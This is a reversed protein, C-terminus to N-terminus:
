RRLFGADRSAERSRKDAQQVVSKGLSMMFVKDQLRAQRGAQRYENEGQRISPVKGERGEESGCSSFRVRWGREHRRQKSRDRGREGERGTQWM